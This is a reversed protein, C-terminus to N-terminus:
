GIVYNAYSRRQSPYVEQNRKKGKCVAKLFVKKFKKDVKPPRECHQRVNIPLPQHAPVQTGTLPQVTVSGSPLARPTLSVLPPRNVTGACSLLPTITVLQRGGGIRAGMNSASTGSNVTVSVNCGPGQIPQKGDELSPLSPLNM